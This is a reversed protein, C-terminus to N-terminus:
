GKVSTYEVRNDVDGVVNTYRYCAIFRCQRMMTVWLGCILNPNLRPITYETVKFMYGDNCYM